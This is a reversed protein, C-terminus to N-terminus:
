GRRQRQILVVIGALLALGPLVVVTVLFILNLVYTQPPIVTRQTTEKPTLSILEEEGAIWDVSNIFVDVNAYAVFNDNSVFDSDGFVVLRGGSTLNEGSVALSIPGLMDAGEDFSIQSQADALSALNTEAWSQNSTLVLEVLSADGGQGGATVSRASPYQSTINQLPRTIAHNGYMAAYPAFPQQSTTDIIIDDQLLIGWNDALYAVMPDEQDGFQTVPLPEQMIMLGGGNGVFQDLLDIETQSVPKQPGPVIVVQADEPIQNEALLNLTKVVYNKSELFRKIQSYSREGVGDPDYEGHGSLFYVVREEPSILRVLAGTLEQESIFEVIQKNEGMTLVVSGDRTIGAAEAAVPDADPDIFQYDFMGDSHFKYQDLLGQAQEPSSMATFFAQAMVPDSLSKLTELTEPALTYQKDETLDWRQSNQFVLYNVVVLITLFALTLILANSGYRAQRGTLARRVRDPDLIVFLALGLPILALSIQLALNWERQVIYLGASVVAAILALFLGIPAFRRWKAFM